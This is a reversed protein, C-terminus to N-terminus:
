GSCGCDKVLHVVQGDVTTLEWRKNRGGRTRKVEVLEARWVERGNSRTVAVAVGARIITRVRDHIVDPEGETGPITVAGSSVTLTPVPSTPM